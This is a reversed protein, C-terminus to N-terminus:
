SSFRGHVEQRKRSEDVVEVFHFKFVEHSVNKPSWIVIYHISAYGSEKRELRVHKLSFREWLERSLYAVPPDASSIELVDSHRLAHDVMPLNALFYVIIRAGLADRMEKISETAFGNPFSEPKRLIKDAVSEPRKIRTVSRKIPSPAPMRSSKVQEAWAAPERWYNFFKRLEQETPILISKAYEEYTHLFKQQEDSQTM